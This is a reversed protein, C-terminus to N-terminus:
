ATAKRRKLRLVAYAIYGFIAAYPIALFWANTGSLAFSTYPSVSPALHPLFFLTTGAVAAVQLWQNEWPKRILVAALPVIWVWHHFWTFPSVLCAGFGAIIMAWAMDQNKLALWIGVCIIVM